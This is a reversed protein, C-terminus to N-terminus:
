TPKVISIAIGAMLAPVGAAFLWTPIESEFLAAGLLANGLAFLLLGKGDRIIIGLTALSIAAVLTAGFSFHLSSLPIGGAGGVFAGLGILVLEIVRFLGTRDVPDIENKEVKDNM